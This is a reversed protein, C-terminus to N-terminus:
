AARGERGMERGDHGAGSGRADAEGVPDFTRLTEKYRAILQHRFRELMARGDYGRRFASATLGL